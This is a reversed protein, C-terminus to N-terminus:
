CGSASRLATRLSVEFVQGDMWIKGNAIDTSDEYLLKFAHGVSCVRHFYHIGGKRILARSIKGNGMFDIIFVGREGKLCEYKLKAAGIGSGDAVQITEEQASMLGELNITIDVNKGTARCYAWSDIEFIRVVVTAINSIELDLVVSECVEWEDKTPVIALNVCSTLSQIDGGTDLCIFIIKKM